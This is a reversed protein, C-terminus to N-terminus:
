AGFVKRPRLRDGEREAVAVLSGSFLLAVPGPDVARLPSAHVDPGAGGDGRFLVTGVAVPRGHRVAEAEEADLERRPLWGLAEVATRWGDGTGPPGAKEPAVADEVRFPGIRTRRLEVLHAGCGLARGLDRALSRVYTGTSVTAAFGVRPPEFSELELAHITVPIPDLRVPRGRRAEAHARRGGVRKASYRPPVQTGPGLHARLAAEVATETVTRWADSESVPAGTPDETDTEVGLRLVAHYRKDLAHFYDMARTLRGALLILLGTAFPDLTGTHGIRRLKARARVELM